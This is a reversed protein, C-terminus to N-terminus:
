HNSLAPRHRRAYLVIEVRAQAAKPIRYQGTPFDLRRRHTNGAKAFLNHDPTVFIALHLRQFVAARVATCSQRHAPVQAITDGAPIVPNFHRAITFDFINGSDIFARQDPLLAHAAVVYLFRM